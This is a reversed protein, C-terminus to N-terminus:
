CAWCFPARANIRLDSVFNNRVNALLVPPASFVLAVKRAATHKTEM